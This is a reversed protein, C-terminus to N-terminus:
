EVLIKGILKRLLRSVVGKNLISTFPLVLLHWFKQSQFDRFFQVPLCHLLLDNQKFLFAYASIHFKIQIIQIIVVHAAKSKVQDKM